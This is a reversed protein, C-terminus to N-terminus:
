EGGTIPSLAGLRGTTLWIGLFVFAISLGLGLLSTSPTLTLIVPAVVLDMPIHAGLYNILFFAAVWGLCYAVLILVLTRAFLLGRLRTPTFGIVRLLSIEHGRETLSLSTANYIAFTIASLSVLALINSLILLNHNVQGYSNNLANELYVAYRTSVRPDSRLKQRVSEPNSSPILPLYAIQFGRGMGFLSQGETYTMWLSGYDNEGSRVLGTVQFDTGYINVSSGIGWSTGQPMGESVVIQHPGVPWRGSLLTLNLAGSMEQLPVAWVQMICNQITLHRFLVPFARQIQDPAIQRVTQLLDEGLSSEMPDIADASIIVLNDTVRSQKGFSLFIQAISALLLFGVVVAALSLITLLSRWGDHWLDKFIFYGLSRM